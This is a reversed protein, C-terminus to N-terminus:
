PQSVAQIQVLSQLSAVQVITAFQIIPLKLGRLSCLQVCVYGVLVLPSPSVNRVERAQSIMQLVRWSHSLSEGLAHPSPLHVLTHRKLTQVAALSECINSNSYTEQALMAM